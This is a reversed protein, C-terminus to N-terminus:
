RGIQIIRGQRIKMTQAAAEGTLFEMSLRLGLDNPLNTVAPTAASAGNVFAEVGSGDWYFEVFVLTADVLTHLSASLTETTNKELMFKLDTSGDLSEFGIRDTVGGLITTDTTALGLFFDVQTVDNIEFEFGCYLDQDSTLEFAEGALQLSPGDNEANDTLLEWVYGATNSATVESSGGLGAEVVTTTWGAPDSGTGGHAQVQGPSLVYQIVDPGIAHLLRKRHTHWFALNGRIFRSHLTSM